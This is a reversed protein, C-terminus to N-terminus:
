HNSIHRDRTVHEQFISMIAIQTWSVTSTKLCNHVSQPAFLNTTPM